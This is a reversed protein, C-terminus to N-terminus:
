RGVPVLVGDARYRAMLLEDPGLAEHRKPTFAPRYARILGQHAPLKELADRVAARDASGALNIAKALLHLMDYAHAVGTPSEIQEFRAPGGLKVASRMFRERVAPEAEFFSFTQLVTLDVEALAPGAQAAFSGGTIGQHCLLPLREEKPLAAVERVLLAAEEDNSVVVIAKAGAQRMAQYRQILSPEGWNFWTVHAIAPVRATRLYNQAAALNSRGWGTNVLLLGVKDFGRQEVTKLMKPMARSDQLALRFVYNPTRGNDVIPDASTWVAFFPLRLEHIVPLADLVVPSFKGGFVGVLHPMAAFTKLNNIARAPMSRNDLTVLELPRGKLVGGAANVESIAVRLGLEIAQASTSNALGFEADLGVQVPVPLVPAQQASAPTAHALGAAVLLGAAALTWSRRLRWRMMWGLGSM